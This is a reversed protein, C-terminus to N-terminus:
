SGPPGPPSGSRKTASVYRLQLDYLVEDLIQTEEASRHGETKQRLLLLLDIADAAHALDHHREGTAPDPAEGMSIVASSALMMFLGILSRGPEDGPDALPEAAPKRPAEARAASPAPPEDDAPRRRRDSVKFPEEPEAPVM